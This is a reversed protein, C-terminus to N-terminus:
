IEGGIQAAQNDRARIGEVDSIAESDTKVSKAGKKVKKSKEQVVEDYRKKEEDFKKKLVADRQEFEQQEKKEREEM